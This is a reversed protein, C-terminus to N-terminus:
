KSTNIELAEILPTMVKNSRSNKSFIYKKMYNNVAMENYDFIGKRIILDCDKITDISHATIGLEDAFIKNTEKFDDCADQITILCMPKKHCVAYSWAGTHHGIVGKSYKVLQETEYLFPRGNYINENSLAKPYAAIVVKINTSKEIKDILTNLMREQTKQDVCSKNDGFVKYDHVLWAHNALLVFYDYDPIANTKPLEKNRLFSVYDFSHTELFVTADNRDTIEHKNLILIYKPARYSGLARYFFEKFGDLIKYKIKKLSSAAVKKFFNLTLYITSNDNIVRAIHHPQQHNKIEVYDINLKYLIHLIDLRPPVILIVLKWGDIENLIKYLERLNDATEEQFNNDKESIFYEPLDKIANPRILSLVNIVRIKYGNDLFSTFEYKQHFKSFPYLVLFIITKNKSFQPSHLNAKL